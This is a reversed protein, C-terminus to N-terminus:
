TTLCAPHTAKTVTQSLSRAQGVDSRGHGYVFKMKLTQRKQRLQTNAGNSRRSCETRDQGNELRRRVNIKAFCWCPCAGTAELQECICWIEEPCDPVHDAAALGLCSPKDACLQQAHVILVRAVGAVGQKEVGFLICRVAVYLAAAACIPGAVPEVATSLLLV